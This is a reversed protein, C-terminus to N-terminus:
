PRPPLLEQHLSVISDRGGGPGGQRESMQWARGRGGVMCGLSDMNAQLQQPPTGAEAASQKLMHRTKQADGYSYFLFCHADRGDRGARCLSSMTMTCELGWILEWTRRM